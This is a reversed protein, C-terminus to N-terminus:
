PHFLLLLLYTFCQFCETVQIIFPCLAAFGPQLGSQDAPCQSTPSFTLRTMKGDRHCRAIGSSLQSSCLVTSCSLVQSSWRRKECWCSLCGERPKSSRRPQCQKGRTITVLHNYLLLAVFASLELTLYKYQSFFAQFFVFM